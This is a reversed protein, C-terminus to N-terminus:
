LSCRKCIVTGDPLLNKDSEFAPEYYEEKDKIDKGCISCDDGIYMKKKVVPIKIKIKM